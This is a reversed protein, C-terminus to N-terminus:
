QVSSKDSSSKEKPKRTNNSESDLNDTSSLLVTDVKSPLAKPPPPPNQVVTNTTVTKITNNDSLFLSSKEKSKTINNNSESDPNDTSEALVTDVKSPLAKLPTQLVTTTTAKIPSVVFSAKEPSSESCNSHRPTLQMEAQKSETKTNNMKKQFKFLLAKGKGEGIAKTVETKIIDFCHQFAGDLPINNVAIIRDSVRIRGTREAPSWADAQDYKKLKGMNAGWSEAPSVRM